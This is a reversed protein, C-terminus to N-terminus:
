VKYKRLPLFAHVQRQYALFEEGLEKILLKTERRAVIVLFAMVCASIIAVGLTSFGGTRPILMTLM